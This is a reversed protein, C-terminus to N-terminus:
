IPLTNRSVSMQTLDLRGHHDVISCQERPEEKQGEEYEEHQTKVLLDRPVPKEDEYRQPQKIKRDNEVNNEVHDLMTRGPDVASM